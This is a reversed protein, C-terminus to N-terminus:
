RHRATVSRASGTRRPQEARMPNTYVLERQHPRRRSRRGYGRDRPRHDSGTCFSPVVSVDTVCRRNGLIYDLHSRAASLYRESPQVDNAMLLTMANNLLYM